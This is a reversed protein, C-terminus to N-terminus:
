TGGLAAMGLPVKGDRSQVNIKAGHEVLLKVIDTHGEMAAILIVPYSVSWRTSESNADAGAELLRGVGAVDGSAVAQVLQAGM